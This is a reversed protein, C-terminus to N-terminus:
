ESFNVTRPGSLIGLAIKELLDLDRGSPTERAIKEILILSFDKCRGAILQDETRNSADINLLLDKEHVLVNENIFKVLFDINFAIEKQWDVLPSNSKGFSYVALLMSEAFEPFRLEQKDRKSAEVFCGGAKKYGEYLSKKQWPALSVISQSFALSSLFWYVGGMFQDNAAVADLAAERFAAGSRGSCRSM